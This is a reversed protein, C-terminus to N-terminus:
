TLLTIAGTTFSLCDTDAVASPGASLQNVIELPVM